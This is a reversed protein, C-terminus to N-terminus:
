TGARREARYVFRTYSLLNMATAKLEVPIEIIAPMTCVARDGSFVAHLPSLRHKALVNRRWTSRGTSSTPVTVAFGASVSTRIRIFVTACITRAALIVAKANGSFLQAIASTGAANRVAQPLDVAIEGVIAQSHLM